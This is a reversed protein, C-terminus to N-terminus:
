NLKMDSCPGYDVLAIRIAGLQDEGLHSNAGSIVLMAAISVPEGPEVVVCRLEDRCITQETASSCGALLLSFSLVLNSCFLHIWRNKTM